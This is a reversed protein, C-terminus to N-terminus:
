NKWKKNSKKVSSTLEPKTPAAAVKNCLIEMLVFRNVKGDRILDGRDKTRSM